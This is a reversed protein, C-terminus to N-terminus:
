VTQPTDVVFDITTPVAASHNITITGTGTLGNASYSFTAAGLAVPTLIFSGNGNDSVTFISADSSSFAPNILGLETGNQDKVVLHGVIPGKDVFLSLNMIKKILLNNIVVLLEKRKRRHPREGKYINIEILPM